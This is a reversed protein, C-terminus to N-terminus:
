KIYNELLIPTYNEQLTKTITSLQRLYYKTHTDINDPELYIRTLMNTGYYVMGNLNLKNVLPHTMTPFLESIRSRRSVEEM